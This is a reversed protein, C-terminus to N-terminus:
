HRLSQLDLLCSLRLTDSPNHTRQLQREGLSIGYCHSVRLIMSMHATGLTLTDSTPSRSLCPSSSRAVMMSDQDLIHVILLLTRTNPRILDLLMRRLHLTHTQFLYERMNLQPERSASLSCCHPPPSSRPTRIGWYLHHSRSSLIGHTNLMM